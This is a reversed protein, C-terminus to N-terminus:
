FKGLALLIAKWDDPVHEGASGSYSFQIHEELMLWAIKHNNRNTTNEIFAMLPLLSTDEKNFSWLKLGVTSLSFYYEYRKATQTETVALYLYNLYAQELEDLAMLNYQDRHADSFTRYTERARQELALRDVPPNVQSVARLCDNQLHTLGSDLIMDVNDFYKQQPVTKTYDNMLICDSKLTDIAKQVYLLRQQASKLRKEQHSKDLYLVNKATRSAYLTDLSEQANKAKPLDLSKQADKLYFPMESVVRRAGQIATSQATAVSAEARSSTKAPTAAVCVYGLSLTLTSTIAIKYFTRRM